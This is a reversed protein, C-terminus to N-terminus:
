MPDPRESGGSRRPHGPGPVAQQDFGNQDDKEREREPGQEVGLKQAHEVLIPREDVSENRAIRQDAQLLSDEVPWTGDDLPDRPKRAEAGEGGDASQDQSKAEPLGGVHEAIGAEHRAHLGPGLAESALAADDEPPETALEQADVVVLVDQHDARRAGALADAEHDRVRQAPAPREEDEVDLTLVVRKRSRM